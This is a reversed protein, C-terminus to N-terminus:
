AKEKARLSNERFESPLIGTWKIFARRFSRVDAFGLRRAIEVMGLTGERLMVRALEQQCEAKVALFSTHEQRLRRSLTSLSIDFHRAAGASDPLLTEKLGCESLWSRVRASMPTLGRAFVLPDYAILDINGALDRHSRQVKRALNAADFVLRTVPEHYHVTVGLTALSPDGGSPPPCALDVAVLDLPSATLWSLINYYFLLTASILSPTAHAVMPQLDLCFLAQKGSLGTAISYGREQLLDNFDKALQCADELTEATVIYSLFAELAKQRNASSSIHHCESQELSRTCISYYRVFEARELAIVEGRSVAQLRAIDNRSVEPRGTLGDKAMLDNLMPVLLNSPMMVTELPKM